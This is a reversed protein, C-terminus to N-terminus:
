ENEVDNIDGVDHARRQTTEMADLRERLERM